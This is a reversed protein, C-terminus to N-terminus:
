VGGVELNLELNMLVKGSSIVHTCKNVTARGSLASIGSFQLRVMSGGRVRFDGVVNRLSLSSENVNKVKLLAAAEASLLVDNRVGIRAYHQLIGLRAESVPDSKVSFEREGTRGCYRTVKIRNRRKDICSSFRVESVNANDLVVGSEMSDRSKLVIRGFDDYLIFSRSTQLFELELANQIIGLLSVNDEVRSPIIYSTEQIEGTRLRYDDTLMRLVDCARKDSYVYTDRNLFYRLQDFATITIISNTSARRFCIGYFAGSLPSQESSSSLAGSLPSQESSSHTGRNRVRLSIFDGERVPFRSDSLMSFRLCSARGCDYSELMIEGFIVPEFSCSDNIVRLEVDM